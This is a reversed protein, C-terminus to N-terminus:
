ERYAFQLCTQRAHRLLYEALERGTLNDTERASCAQHYVRVIGMRKIRFNFERTGASIETIGQHVIVVSSGFRYEPPNNPDLTDTM